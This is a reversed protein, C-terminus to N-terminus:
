PINEIFRAATHVANVMGNRRADGTHAAKGWFTVEAGYANFCETELQGIHGGDVTYACKSKILHLPVKDMGHGTEEDPSFIVEIAGHKIEKHSKIYELASVIEAIGAKDDAGLLTTGDSTIITDRGAAAQALYADETVDLVVGDQLDIRAGDYSAHIIPKVDKGSVEDVTDLHALLCFPPVYEMGKSAPLVAYIYGDATLQANKLGVAKIETLLSKAFVKQQSTSPM